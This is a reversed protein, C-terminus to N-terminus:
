CALDSARFRGSVIGGQAHKCKKGFISIFSFQLAKYVMSVIQPTKSCNLRCRCRAVYFIYEASERSRPDLSAHVTRERQVPFLNHLKATRDDAGTDDGGNGSQVLLSDDCVLNFYTRVPRPLLKVAVSDFRPLSLRTRPRKRSSQSYINLAPRFSIPKFSKLSLPLIQIPPSPDLVSVKVLRASKGTITRMQGLTSKSDLKTRMRLGYIVYESGFEPSVTTTEIALPTEPANAAKYSRLVGSVSYPWTYLVHPSNVEPGYAVILTDRSGLILPFLMFITVPPPQTEFM